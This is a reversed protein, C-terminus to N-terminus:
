LCSPISPYSTHTVHTLLGLCWRQRLMNPPTLCGGTCQAFEYPTSTQLPRITELSQLVSPTARSRKPYLVECLLIPLWDIRGVVLPEEIVHRWFLTVVFRGPPQYCSHSPHQHASLCTQKTSSLGISSCFGKEM